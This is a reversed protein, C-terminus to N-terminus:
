KNPVPKNKLLNAVTKELDEHGQGDARLIGDRDILFLRPVSGIGSAENWLARTNQDNAVWVQPFTIGLSKARKRGTEAKEDFSIGVIQLGKKHWKQYLAEL